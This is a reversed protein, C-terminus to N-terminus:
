SLYLTDSHICLHMDSCWSHITTSPHTACHNLFKQTGHTSNVQAVLLTSPVVLMINDIARAYYIFTVVVQQIRKIGELSLHLLNDIPDTLQTKTRYHPATFKTLSQELYGPMSLDITLNTSDWKLSVGLYLSGKWDVTIEYTHKLVAILHQAHEKGTYKTGVNDM